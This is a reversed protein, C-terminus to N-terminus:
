ETEDEDKREIKLENTFKRVTATLGKLAAPDPDGGLASWGGGAIAKAASKPLGLQRLDDVLQQRSQPGAGKSKPKPLADRELLSDAFGMTIAEDANMWTEAAMMAGIKPISQGTRAAYTEALSADIRNLVSTIQAMVDANGIAFAWAKHIMLEANKAMEVRTAAMAIVSAASAAVGLVQVTISAKHARLLNYMAVGAFYDGGPSNMKVTLARPGIEKLAQSLQEPTAGDEGIVDFIEIEASAPDFNFAGNAMRDYRFRVGEPLRPIRLEPMALSKIKM